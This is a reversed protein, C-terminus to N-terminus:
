HKKVKVFASLGSRLMEIDEADLSDLKIKVPIRQVVKTFNGTANDPPLLTFSSGTAPSISEVVGHFKKSSIADVEVSVGANVRIDEVDTEKFNASVWRDSSDVFGLLPLGPSALQGVEVSKKAIIGESPAKIQTNALNLEAQSVQASLSEFRSKTEIYTTNSSDFQQQSIAGNSFLQSLRHYNKEADKMKAQMSSLESRAQILTNQYDREDLEVLVEDKKVKQGEAVNVKAVFGGVKPALLVTHAEVQANDTTVFSFHEYLGYLAFLGLVSLIGAILKKRKNKTM